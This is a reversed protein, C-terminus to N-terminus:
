FCDSAEPRQCSPQYYISARITTKMKAVNVAWGTLSWPLLDIDRSTVNISEEATVKRKFEARTPMGLRTYWLFARERRVDKHKCTTHDAGIKHQTDMKPMSKKALERTRQREDRRRKHEKEVKITLLQDASRRHDQTHDDTGERGRKKEIKDKKDDKMGKKETKPSKMAEKILKTEDRNWPLLDIDQRTIDTDKASDVISCMAAKTPKSFHKYWKYAKKRRLNQDKKTQQRALPTSATKTRTPPLPTETSVSSKSCDRKFSIAMNKNM